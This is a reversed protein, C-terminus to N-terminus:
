IWGNFDETMIRQAGAHDGQRALHAAARARGMDEFFNYIAKVIKM